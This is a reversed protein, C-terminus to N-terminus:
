AKKLMTFVLSELATWEDTKGEKIDYDAQAVAMVCDTLFEDKFSKKMYKKAIFPSVKLAKAIMDAPEADKLMLSALLMKEFTGFLIYLIKFASEKVTKMDKLISLARDADHEMIADTMEFVKTNLCKSVMREIDSRTIEEDSFNILKDTENKLNELGEACIEVLYQANEKRIKKKASLAKREVWTVCDTPSLYSFEQVHGKKEIAKYITNRKDIENEVFIVVIYEPLIELQEKWFEKIEENASKLIGTGRLILIKKDSMMPYTDIYDAIETLPTKADEITLLNFEPLGEDLVQKQLMGLYMDMLYIEEGWFLYLNKIDNNKIQKKLESLTNQKQAM